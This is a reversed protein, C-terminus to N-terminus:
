FNEGLQGCEEGILVGVFCLFELLEATEYHLIHFLIEPLISLVINFQLSYNSIVSSLFVFSVIQNEM